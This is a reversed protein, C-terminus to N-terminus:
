RLRRMRTVAKWLYQVSTVPIVLFLIEKLIAVKAGITVNCKQSNEHIKRLVGEKVVRHRLFIPAECVRHAIEMYSHLTIAAPDKRLEEKFRKFKTQLLAHTLLHDGLKMERFKCRIVGDIVKAAYDVIDDKGAPEIKWFEARRNELPYRTDFEKQLHHLIGVNDKTPFIPVKDTMLHKIRDLVTNDIVSMFYDKQTSIDMNKLGSVKFVHQFM